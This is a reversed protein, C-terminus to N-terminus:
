PMVAMPGASAQTMTRPPPTGTDVHSALAQASPVCRNTVGGLASIGDCARDLWRDWAQWDALTVRRGDLGRLFRRADNRLAGGYVELLAAKRLGRLGDLLLDAVGTGGGVAAAVNRLSGLSRVRTPREVAIAVELVDMTRSVRDYSALVSQPPAHAGLVAEVMLRSGAALSLQANEIAQIMLAADDVAGAHRRQRLNFDGYMALMTVLVHARLLRKEIDAMDVEGVLCDLYADFPNPAGDQIDAPDSTLGVVLSSLLGATPEGARDTVQRQVTRGDPGQVEQVLGACAVLGPQAAVMVGSTNACGSVALALMAIALHSRM